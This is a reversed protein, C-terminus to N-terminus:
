SAPVYGLRLVPWSVTNIPGSSIIDVFRSVLGMRSPLHPPARLGAPPCRVVKIVNVSCFRVHGVQRFLRHLRVTALDGSVQERV